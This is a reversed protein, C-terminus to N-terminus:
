GARDYNPPHFVIINDPQEAEAIHVLVALTRQVAELAAAVAEATNTDATTIVRGGLRRVTAQLRLEAAADLRVEGVTRDRQLM